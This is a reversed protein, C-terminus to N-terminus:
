IQHATTSICADGCTASLTLWIFCECDPTSRGVVMAVKMMVHADFALAEINLDGLPLQVTVCM